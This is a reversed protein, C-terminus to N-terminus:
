LLMALLAAVTALAFSSGRRASSRDKPALTPAPTPAPTPATEVLSIADLFGSIIVRPGAVLKESLQQAEPKISHFSEAIADSEPGALSAKSAIADVLGGFANSILEAFADAKRLGGTLTKSLVALRKHQEDETARSIQTLLASSNKLSESLSSAEHLASRMDIIMKEGLEEGGITALATSAVTSAVSVAASVNDWLPLISGLASNARDEFVVWRETANTKAQSIERLMKKREWQCVATLADAQLGLASFSTNLTSAVAGAASGFLSGAISDMGEPAFRDAVGDIADRGAGLIGGFGPFKEKRLRQKRLQLLELASDGGANKEESALDSSLGSCVADDLPCPGEDIAFAAGLCFTLFFVTLCAM